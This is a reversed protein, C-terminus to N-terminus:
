REGAKRLAAEKNKWWQSYGCTCPGNSHADPCNDFHMAVDEAEKLAEILEDVAAHRPCLEIMM